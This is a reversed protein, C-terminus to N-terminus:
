NHLIGLSRGLGEKGERARVVGLDKVGCGKGFVLWLGSAQGLQERETALSLDSNGLGEAGV